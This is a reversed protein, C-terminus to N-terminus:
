GRATDFSVSCREDLNGPHGPVYHGVIAVRVPRKQSKTLVLASEIGDNMQRVIETHTADLAASSKKIHANRAAVAPARKENHSDAVVADLLALDTDTLQPTTAIWNDRASELASKLSSAAVPTSTEIRWDM